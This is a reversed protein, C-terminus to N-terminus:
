SRRRTRLNLRKKVRSRAKRRGRKRVPCGAWVWATLAACALPILWWAEVFWRGLVALAIWAAPILTAVAVALGTLHKRRSSWPRAPPRPPLPKSVVGGRDPWELLSERARQDPPVWLPRGAAQDREHRQELLVWKPIHRPNDENLKWNLRPRVEADQIFRREMEDLETDTCIGEWLVHSSGVILDSWPQDDRHQNERARGRQRTQGVYDDPMKQGTLHDLVDIGYVVGRYATSSRRQYTATV